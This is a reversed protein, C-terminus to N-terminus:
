QAGQCGARLRGKESIARGTVEEARVIKVRSWRSLGKGEIVGLVAGGKFGTATVGRNRTVIERGEM